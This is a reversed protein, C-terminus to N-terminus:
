FFFYVLPAVVAAVGLTIFLLYRFFRGKDIPLDGVMKGTQGNMAFIYNKGRWKTSLVWVPM